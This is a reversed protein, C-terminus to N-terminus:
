QRQWTIWAKADKASVMDYTTASTQVFWYGNTIFLQQKTQFAPGSTPYPGATLDGLYNLVLRGDSQFAPQQGTGYIWDVSNSAPAYYYPTFADFSPGTAPKIGAWYVLAYYTSTDTKLTKIGYADDVGNVHFGNASIWNSQADAATQWWRRAATIDPNIPKIAGAIAAATNNVNVKLTATLDDWGTITFGGITQSGNVVPSKLQVGAASIFYRTAVTHATGAGDLWTIMLTKYAPYNLLEYETSNYTLRKFYNLIKGMSNFNKVTNGVQKNEWAAREQPSAKRLVASSGNFRGTLAISDTTVTDISFEFDSVLGNGAIGGNVNPDPDALLHIYSYTDFLLGPQQLAKLRYSSEAPVSATTTDFDCYMVVRNSDNFRFYFSYTNGVKTVLTATWGDAAGTIVSQYKSLTENIREDASKDFAPSDNKRCAVFAVAILLYTIKRMILKQDHITLGGGNIM